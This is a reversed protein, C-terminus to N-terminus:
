LLEDKYNKLDDHIYNYESTVEKLRDDFFELRKLKMEQKYISDDVTNELHKFRM